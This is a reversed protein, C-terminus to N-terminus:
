DCCVQSSAKFYDAACDWQKDCEGAECAPQNECRPMALIQCYATTSSACGVGAQCAPLTVGLVNGNACCLNTGKVIAQLVAEESIAKLDVDVCISRVWTIADAARDCNPTCPNDIPNPPVGFQTCVELTANYNIGQHCITLYVEEWTECDDCNAPIQAPMCQGNAKAAIVVAVWALIAVRRLQFCVM